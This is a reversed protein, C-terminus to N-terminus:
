EGMRGIGGRSSAVIDSSVLNRRDSFSMGLAQYLMLASMGISGALVAHFATRCGPVLCGTVGSKRDTRNGIFNMMSATLVSRQISIGSGTRSIQRKHRGEGNIRARRNSFASSVGAGM